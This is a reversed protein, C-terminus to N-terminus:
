PGGERDCEEVIDELTDTLKDLLEGASLWVGRGIGGGAVGGIAMDGRVIWVVSAECLSRCGLIRLAM